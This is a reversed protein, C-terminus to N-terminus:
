LIRKDERPKFIINNKQYPFPLPKDHNIAGSNIAFLIGQPFAKCTGWKKENFYRCALCSTSAFNVAM